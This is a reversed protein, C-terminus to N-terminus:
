ALELQMQASLPLPRHDEMVLKARDGVPLFLHDGVFTFDDLKGNREGPM